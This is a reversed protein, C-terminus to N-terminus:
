DKIYSYIQKAMNELTHSKIKQLNNNSITERLTADNLLKKMYEHAKEVNESEILYGNIGDEVLCQGAICKKTTIVPLGHEMAENVVLGWTDERTTMVFLDAAQYYKRLEDKSLFDISVVNRINSDNIIKVYEDTMSGGILYLCADSDLGKFAKLLIDIGKRHIFQGVFLVMKNKKIGLKTKLEQKEQATLTKEDIDKAYSSTFYYPKLKEKTAGYMLFYDNDGGMGTLYMDAKGMIYKKIKEKIGKGTGQFGGESQIIFPIKHKRCYSLAIVGTPTTPNAIIIREFSKDKLFRKINFSLGSEASTRKANLFHTKFRKGDVNQKWKDDRDSAGSLEFVVTLDVYKGLEDAYNVFYPSPINSTLLVKLQM